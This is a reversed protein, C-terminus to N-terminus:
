DQRGPRAARWPRGDGAEVAQGGGGGPIAHDRRGSATGGANRAVTQCRGAPLRPGRRRGELRGAKAQVPVGPRGPTGQIRGGDMEGHREAGRGPPKQNGDPAVEGWLGVGAVHRLDARRIPHETARRGHGPQVREPEPRTARLVDLERAGTVDLAVTRLQALNVAVLVRGASPAVKEATTRLAEIAEQTVKGNATVWTPVAAVQRVAAESYFVLRINVKRDALRKLWPPDWFRTSVFWPKEALGAAAPSSGLLADFLVQSVVGKGIDKVVVADVDKIRDALMAAWPEARALDEDRLWSRQGDLKYPPSLEWDIRSLQVQEPGDQQYSRFVRTTGFDRPRDGNEALTAPLTRGDSPAAGTRPGEAPDATRVRSKDFLGEISVLEVQSPLQDKKLEDSTVRYPTRGAMCDPNFMGRLYDKDAPDWLGVGLINFGGLTESTPGGSAAHLLSAVYGAGSLRRVVNDPLNLSRYHAFGGNAATQSRHTGVLWNDDIVWDGIVLITRARPFKDSM